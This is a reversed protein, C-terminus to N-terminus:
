RCTTTANMDFVIRQGAGDDISVLEALYSATPRPELAIPFAGTCSLGDFTVDSPTGGSDDLVYNNRYRVRTNRQAVESEAAAYFLFTSPQRQRYSRCRHRQVRRRPCCSEVFSFTSQISEAQGRTSFVTSASTGLNICHPGDLEPWIPTTAPSLAPLERDDAGRLPLIRVPEAGMNIGGNRNGTINSIRINKAWGVFVGCQINPTDQLMRFQGDLWVDRLSYNYTRVSRNLASIEAIAVTCLM